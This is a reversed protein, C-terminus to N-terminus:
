GDWVVEEGSFVPGDKCVRMYKWDSEGQKQIKIGCGLCAGIGCAMREEMSVQIPISHKKAWASVSMLMSRPGCAFIQDASPNIGELLELVNGHFGYSGSQTSINVNLGLRQFDEVMFPEDSYGLLIETKENLRRSLELLPPIGLGGGIVLNSKNNGSLTFGNGLPGMIQIFDNKRLTSLMETGRGVIRYVITVDDDSVSSISFPRALMNKGNPLYLQIFQGPNVIGAIEAAELKMKFINPVIEKHSKVKAKYLVM